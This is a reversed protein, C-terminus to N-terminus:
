AKREQSHGVCIMSLTPVVAESEVQIDYGGYTFLMTYCLLGFFEETEFLLPSHQVGFYGGNIAAWGGAVADEWEITLVM